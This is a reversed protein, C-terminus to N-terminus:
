QGAPLPKCPLRKVSVLQELRGRNNHRRSVFREHSPCRGVLVVCEHLRKAVPTLAASSSVFSLNKLSVMDGSKRSSVRCSEDVETRAAVSTEVRSTSVM